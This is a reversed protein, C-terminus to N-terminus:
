SSRRRCWGLLVLGAGALLAVSPEPIAEATLSLQNVYFSMSAGTRRYNFYLGIAGIDEFASGAITEAATVAAPLPADGSFTYLSWSVDGLASIVTPTKGDGSGRNGLSSVYWNWVGNVQAYVLVGSQRMAPSSSSGGSSTITFSFSSTDDFTIPVSNPVLFDDRTFYYLGRMTRQNTGAGTALAIADSSTYGFTSFTPTAGAEEILFAGYLKGGATGIPATSSYRYDIMGPTTEPDVPEVTFPTAESVYDGGWEFVLTAAGARHLSFAAFFLILLAFLGTAKGTRPTSHSRM